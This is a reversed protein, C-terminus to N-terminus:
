KKVKKKRNNLVKAIQTIRRGTNGNTWEFTKKFGGYKLLADMVWQFQYEKSYSGDFELTKIFEFTTLYGGQYATPRPLHRLLLKALQQSQEKTVDRLYIEGTFQTISTVGCCDHNGEDSFEFLIRGNNNNDRICPCDSGYDDRGNDFRFRSKPKKAKEEM